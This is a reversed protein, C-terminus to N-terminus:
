GSAPDANSRAKAFLRPWAPLPAKPTSASCRANTFATRQAGDQFNTGDNEFSSSTTQRTRGDVLSQHLFDHSTSNQKPQQAHRYRHDNQQPQEEAVSRPGDADWHLILSRQRRPRKKRLMTM